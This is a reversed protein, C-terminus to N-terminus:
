QSGGPQKRPIPFSATLDQLNVKEALVPQLNADDITLGKAIYTLESYKEAQKPKRFIAIVKRRTAQMTIERVDKKLATNPVYAGNVLRFGMAMAVTGAFKDAILLPRADDYDGVMRATIHINMLQPFIDLKQHANSTSTISINNASLKNNLAARFFFDGKLTSDVGTLHKFNHPMFLTEVCDSAGDDATVFLLNKGSLNKGYLVANDHIIKVVEFISRPLM